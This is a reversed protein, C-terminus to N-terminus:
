IAGVCIQPTVFIISSWQLTLSMDIAGVDSVTMQFHIERIAYSLGWQRM